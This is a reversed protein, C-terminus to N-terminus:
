TACSFVYFPYNTINLEFNTWRGGEKRRRQGGSQMMVLERTILRTFTSVTRAATPSRCCMVSLFSNEVKLKEVFTIM